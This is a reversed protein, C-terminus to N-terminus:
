RCRAGAAIHSRPHAARGRRAFGRSRYERHSTRRLREDLVIVPHGHRYGRPVSVVAQRQARFIRDAAVAAARDHAVAGADSLRAGIVVLQHDQEDEPRFFQMLKQLAIGALREVVHQMGVQVTVPQKEPPHIEARCPEEMRRDREARCLVIEIEGVVQMAGDAGIKRDFELMDAEPLQADGEGVGISVAIDEDGAVSRM